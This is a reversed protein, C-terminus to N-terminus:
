MKSLINVIVGDLLTEFSAESANFLESYNIWWHTQIFRNCSHNFSESMFITVHLWRSAYRLLTCFSQFIVSLSVTQRSCVHVTPTFYITFLGQTSWLLNGMERIKYNYYKKIQNLYFNMCKQESNWMFIIFMVCNHVCFSFVFFFLLFYIFTDPKIIYFWFIAAIPYLFILYMRQLAWM